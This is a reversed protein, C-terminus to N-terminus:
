KGRKGGMQKPADMKGGKPAMNGFQFGGKKGM